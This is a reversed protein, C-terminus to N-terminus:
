QCELWSHKAENWAHCAKCTQTRTIHKFHSDSMSWLFPFRFTANLFVVSLSPIHRLEGELRQNSLNQDNLNSTLKSRQQKTPEQMSTFFFDATKFNGEAVNFSHEFCLLNTNYFAKQYLHKDTKPSLFFTPKYKITHCIIFFLNKYFYLIGYPITHLIKWCSKSTVLRHATLKCGFFHSDLSMDKLGWSMIESM